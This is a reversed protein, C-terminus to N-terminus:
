IYFVVIKPDKNPLNQFEYTVLSFAYSIVASSLLFSMFNPKLAIRVNTHM